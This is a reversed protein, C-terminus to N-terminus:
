VKVIFVQKFGNKAGHMEAARREYFFQGDPTGYVQTVAQEDYVGSYQLGLAKLYDTAQKESKIGDGFIEKASRTKPKSTESM